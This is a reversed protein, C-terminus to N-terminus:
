TKTGGARLILTPNKVPDNVADLAAFVVGNQFFGRRASPLELELLGPGAVRFHGELANESLLVAAIRVVRELFEESAPEEGDLIRYRCAREDESAIGKFRLM